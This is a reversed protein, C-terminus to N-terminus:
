SLAGVPQANVASPVEPAVAAAGIRRRSRVVTGKRPSLTVNRRTVREAHSGVSQLLSGRLVTELVVRMELEAFSAGLCRRVGGGFPIWGYGSPPADLFREPRFAYPEPYLDPRTHTLWISPAVDSGAPLSLGDCDLESTLRRGALPVVPRLRLSEWVVARMYDDEGADMEATLRDLVAPHRLLLDFTWALGTATTEHGALLLTVLQDRLESDSMAGGDEFRAAMLLSLIDEREALAPDSRREAIEALLLEDISAAIQRLRALPDGRGLRSALVFRLQLAPATTEQLLLPLRERLLEGREGPGRDGVGFVARLIVELTIAQMHPHIAFPQAEPWRDMDREAADRMISEYSRMQEGHFPPLMLKRRTLHERGELLLVSSPGMVPLLSVTRGPPLGHEPATYLAKIAAPNSLIVMPREFGPFRVAFADGFRRRCSELFAIPRALWRVMQIAPPVSPGLTPASM